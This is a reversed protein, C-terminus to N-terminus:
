RVADALVLYVCLAARVKCCKLVLWFQLQSWLHPYLLCLSDNMKHTTHKEIHTHTHTTPHVLRTLSQPLPPWPLCEGEWDEVISKHASLRHRATLPLNFLSILLRASTLVSSPVKLFFFVAAWSSSHLLPGNILDCLARGAWEGLKMRWGQCIHPVSSRLLVTLSPKSLLHWQM